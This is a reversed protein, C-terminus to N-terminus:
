LRGLTRTPRTAEGEQLRHGLRILAKGTRFRWGKEPPRGEHRRFWGWRTLRRDVAALREFQKRVEYEFYLDSM